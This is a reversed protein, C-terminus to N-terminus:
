GVTRYKTVTVEYPEVEQCEIEDKWYWDQIGDNYSQEFGFAFFKTEDANKDTVSFVVDVNTCDHKGSSEERDVVSTVLGNDLEWDEEFVIDRLQEKTFKM